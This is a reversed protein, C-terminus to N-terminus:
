NGATPLLLRTYEEAALQSPQSLPDVVVPGRLLQKVTFRM